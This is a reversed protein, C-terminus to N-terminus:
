TSAPNRSGDDLAIRSRVLLDTAAAWTASTGVRQSPQYLVGPALDIQGFQGLSFNGTVVLQQDFQVLMGEYREWHSQDDIPLTIQVPAPLAANSGCVQISSVVGLETLHSIASGTSSAFESVVGRVRVRDGADVAHFQLRVLGGVNGPRCGARRVASRYLLGVIGPRQFDAVVVAEADVTQGALPSLAGSGQISSPTSVAGCNEDLPLLITLGISFLSLAGSRRIGFMSCDVSGLAAPQALTLSYSFAVGNNPLIQGNPGGIPGLDCTV